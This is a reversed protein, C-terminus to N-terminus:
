QLENVVLQLSQQLLTRARHLRVKVLAMTIRLHDAIEQYAMDEVYRLRVVTAFEDPLTDIAKQIAEMLFVDGDPAIGEDELQELAATEEDSSLRDAAYRNYIDISQRKAITFIWKSFEGPEFSARAHYAAAFTNQFADWALEEDGVIKSCYALLRYRYRQYLARFAADDNEDRVRLFLENDTQEM